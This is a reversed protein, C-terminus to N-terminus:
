EYPGENKKIEEKLQKIVKDYHEPKQGICCSPHKKVMEQNFVIMGLVSKQQDLSLNDMNPDFRGFLEFLEDPQIQTKEEPM